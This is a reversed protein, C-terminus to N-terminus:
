PQLQLELEVVDGVAIEGDRVVRAYVRSWGPHLKESVRTFDHQRFAGAINRCPAAFATLEALVRGIRVRRGPQMLRWDIGSITVNEGMKGAGAPHGERVLADLLELSYLCLARDPGGHFKRNRQWDGEMGTLHVATREIPLKPVGGGSRQLGAVRGLVPSDEIM